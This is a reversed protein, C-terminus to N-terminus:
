CQLGNREACWCYTDNSATGNAATIACAFDRGCAIAPSFALGGVVEVGELSDSTNTPNGSGLQGRSNAGWCFAGRTASDIGCVFGTGVCLASFQRAPMAPVPASSSGRSGNGLEGSEGDGWCYASFNASVGCSVSPGSAVSVFTLGGPVPTIVSGGTTNDVEATITNQFLPGHPADSPMDVRGPVCSCARGALRNLASLLGASALDGEFCYASRNAALGCSGHGASLSVFELDSPVLELSFPQDQPSARYQSDAYARAFCPALNPGVYTSM